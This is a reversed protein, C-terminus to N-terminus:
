KRNQPPPTPMLKSKALDLLSMLKNFDEKELLIYSENDSASVKMYIAWGGKSWYCGAEIGDRTRFSAESYGTSTKSFLQAQLNNFDRTLEDIGSMETYTCKVEPSNIDKYQYVFRMYLFQQENNLLNTLKVLQLKLNKIEGIDSIEKRLITGPMKLQREIFNDRVVPPEANQAMGQPGQAYLSISSLLISCVLLFIKM